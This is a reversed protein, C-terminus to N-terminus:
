WKFYYCLQWCQQYSVHIFQIFVIRRSPYFEWKIPMFFSRKCYLQQKNQPINAYSSYSSCLCIITTFNRRNLTHDFHFTFHYLKQSLQQSTPHLYSTISFMVYDRGTFRRPLSLKQIAPIRVQTIQHILYCQPAAPLSIAFSQFQCDVVVSKLPQM